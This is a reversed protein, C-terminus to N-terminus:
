ALGHVFDAHDTLWFNREVVLHVIQAHSWGSSPASDEAKVGRALLRDVVSQRNVVM